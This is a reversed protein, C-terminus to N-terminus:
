ERVEIHRNDRTVEIEAIRGFVLEGVIWSVYSRSLGLQTRMFKLRVCIHGCRRSFRRPGRHLDHWLLAVSFPVDVGLLAEIKSPLLQWASSKLVARRLGPASRGGSP